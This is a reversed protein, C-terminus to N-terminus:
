DKESAIEDAFFDTCNIAPINIIYPEENLAQTFRVRVIEEPYSGRIRVALTTKDTQMTYPETEESYTIYSVSANSSFSPDNFFDISSYIFLAISLLVLLISCCGGILTTFSHRGKYNLQVPIAFLDQRKILETVSM